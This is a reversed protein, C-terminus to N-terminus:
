GWPVLAITHEPAIIVAIFIPANIRLIISHALHVILSVQVNMSCKGMALAVVIWLIQIDTHKSFIDYMRWIVFTSVVILMKVAGFIIEM